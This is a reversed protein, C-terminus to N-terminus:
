RDAKASMIYSGIPANFPLTVDYNSRQFMPKNDNVNVVIIHVPHIVTYTDDSANLILHYERQFEYDLKRIARLIYTTSSLQNTPTSINSIFAHAHADEDIRFYSLYNCLTLNLWENKKMTDSDSVTILSLIDNPSNNEKVYLINGDKVYVHPKNNNTDM